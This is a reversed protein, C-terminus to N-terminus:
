VSHSTLMFYQRSALHRATRQFFRSADADGKNWAETEGNVIEEIREQDETMIRSSLLDLPEAVQSAM